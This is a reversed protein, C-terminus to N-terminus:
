GGSTRAPPPITLTSSGTVAQQELWERACRENIDASQALEPPTLLGATLAEYFGLRRGLYVGLLDMSALAAQFFGEVLADRHARAM